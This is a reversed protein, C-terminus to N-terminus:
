SEDNVNGFMQPLAKGIHQIFRFFILPVAKGARM